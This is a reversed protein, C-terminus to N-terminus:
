KGFNYQFSCCCYSFFYPVGDKHERSISDAKSFAESGGNYGYDCGFNYYNGVEEGNKTGKGVTGWISVEGDCNNAWSMACLQRCTKMQRSNRLLVVSHIGPHGKNKNLGRCAAAASMHQAQWQIDSASLKDYGAPLFRQPIKGNIDLQPANDRIGGLLDFFQEPPETKPPKQTGLLQLMEEEKKYADFFFKVPDFDKDFGRTRRRRELWKSKMKKLQLMFSVAGKLSYTSLQQELHMVKKQLGQILNVLSTLQKQNLAGDKGDRGDKGDLCTCNCQPVKGTTASFECKEPVNDGNAVVLLLIALILKNCGDM